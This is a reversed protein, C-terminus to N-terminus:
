SKVGETDVAVPHLRHASCNSFIVFAENVSLSAFNTTSAPRPMCPLRCRTPTNVWVGGGGCAPVRHRLHHAHVAERLLRGRGLAAVNSAPLRHRV